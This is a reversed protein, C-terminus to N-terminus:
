KKKNPSEALKKLSDYFISQTKRIEVRKKEPIISPDLRWLEVKKTKRNFNITYLVGCPDVRAPFLNEAKMKIFLGKQEFSFLSDGLKNNIKFWDSMGTYYNGDADIGILKGGFITDYSKVDRFYNVLVGSMPPIVMGNKTFYKEKEVMLGYKDKNATLFSITDKTNRYKWKGNSLLELSHYATVKGNGEEYLLLNGLPFIASSGNVKDIEDTNLIDGFTYYRGNIKGSEFSYFTGGPHYESLSLFKGDYYRGAADAEDRRIDQKVSFITKIKNKIIEYCVFKILGHDYEKHLLLGNELFDFSSIHDSNERGDYNYSWEELNGIKKWTVESNAAITIGIFTLFFWPFRMYIEKNQTKNKIFPHNFISINQGIEALPLNYSTPHLAL